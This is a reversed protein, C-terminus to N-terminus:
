FYTCCVRMRAAAGLLKRVESSEIMVAETNMMRRRSDDTVTLIDCRQGPSLEFRSPIKSFKLKDNLVARMFYIDNRALACM